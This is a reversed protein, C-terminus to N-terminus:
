ATLIAGGAKAFYGSAGFPMGIADVESSVGPIAAHFYGRNV